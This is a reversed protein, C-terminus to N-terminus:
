IEELKKPFFGQDFIANAKDEPLGLLSWGLADAVDWIDIFNDQFVLEGNKYIAYFDIASVVTFKDM